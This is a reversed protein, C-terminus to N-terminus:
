FVKELQTRIHYSQVKWVTYLHEHKRTLAMEWNINLSTIVNDSVNSLISLVTIVEFRFLFLVDVDLIDAFVDVIHSELVSVEGYQALVRINSTVFSTFKSYHNLDLGEVLNM